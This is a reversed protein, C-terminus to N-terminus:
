EAAEALDSESVINYGNLMARTKWVVMDMVVRESIGARIMNRAASRRLAHYRLDPMAAREVLTKWAKKHEGFGEGGKRTFRDEPGKSELCPEVVAYGDDPLIM